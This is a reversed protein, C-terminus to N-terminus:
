SMSLVLQCAAPARAVDTLDGVVLVAACAWAIAAFGVEDVAITIKALCAARFEAHTGAFRSRCDRYAVRAIEVTAPQLRSSDTLYAPLTNTKM